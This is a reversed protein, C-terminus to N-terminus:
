LCSDFIFYSLKTETSQIRVKRLSYYNNISYPRFLILHNISIMIGENKLYEEFLIILMKLISIIEM